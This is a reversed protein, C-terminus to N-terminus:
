QTCAFLHSRGRWTCGTYSFSLLCSVIHLHHSLGFWAFSRGLLVLEGSVTHRLTSHRSILQLPLLRTQKESSVSTVVAAFIRAFNDDQCAPGRPAWVRGECVSIFLIFRENHVPGDM